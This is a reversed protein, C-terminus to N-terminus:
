VVWHRFELGNLAQFNSPALHLAARAAELSLNMHGLMYLCTSKKNYAEAYDPADEVLDTFIDLAKEKNGRLLEALGDDLRRRCDENPHAKYVEKCWEELSSADNLNESSKLLLLM